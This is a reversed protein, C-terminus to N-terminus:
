RSIQPSTFINNRKVFKRIMVQKKVEKKLEWAVKASFVM